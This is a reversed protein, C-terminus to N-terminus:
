VTNFIYNGGKSPLPVPSPSYAPSDINLDFMQFQLAIKKIMVKM